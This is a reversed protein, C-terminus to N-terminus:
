SEKFLFILQNNLFFTFFSPEVVHALEKLQLNKLNKKKASDILELSYRM